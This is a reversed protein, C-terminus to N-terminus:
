PQVTFTPNDGFGDSFFQNDSDQMQYGEARANDVYQDVEGQMGAMLQDLTQMTLVSTLFSRVVDMSVGGYISSRTGIIDLNGRDLGQAVGPHRLEDLYHITSCANFFWVRYQEPDFDGERTMRELDNAREDIVREM